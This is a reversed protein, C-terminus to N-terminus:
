LRRVLASLVISCLRRLSCHRSLCRAIAPSVFYYAQVLVRGIARPLLVRDRFRRLAITETANPGFVASAIFCRKDVPESTLLGPVRRMADQHFSSHRLEGHEANRRVCPDNRPGYRAQLLVRRECVFMNALDTASVYRMRTKPRM